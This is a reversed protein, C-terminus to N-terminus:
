KDEKYLDVWEVAHKHMAANTFLTFLGLGHAILMFLCCYVPFVYPLASYVTDSNNNKQVESLIKKKYLM